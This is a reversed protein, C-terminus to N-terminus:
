VWGRKKDRLVHVEEGRFWLLTINEFCYGECNSESVSVNQELCGDSPFPLLAYCKHFLFHRLTCLPLVSM